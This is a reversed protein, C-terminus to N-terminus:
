RSKLEAALTEIFNGVEASEIGGGQALHERGGGKGGLLSLTKQLLKGAHVGDNVGDDSVSLVVSLRDEQVASVVAVTMGGRSRIRDSLERMEAQSAGELQVHAIRYRGAPVVNREVDFDEDIDKKRVRRLKTKLTGIEDQLAVIKDVLGESDISILASLEKLISDQRKQLRYADLNTMAEIRRVGSSVSGERLVKFLGVDGTRSAHTGGCLERSLDDIQVVRVLDGYKEDFLMTAGMERAQSLSINEHVQVAINALVAENVLYEIRDLEEDALAHYHNFDFRLRDPAVLSGAQAAHMGVVERLAHHLLHTATHNAMIRRRRSADVRARYPFDGIEGEVVEGIHIYADGSKKVDDIRITVGESEIMGTDGVQGGSEGYFPTRDFVLLVGSGDFRYRILHIDEETTTTYGTYETAEAERYVEWTGDRDEALSTQFKAGRKARERQLTM